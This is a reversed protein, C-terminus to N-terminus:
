IEEVNYRNCSDSLNCRNSTDGLNCRNSVDGFDCRKGVKGLNCGHIVKGLNCKNSLNGFDCRNSVKGLDCRKSAEGTNYRNSGEGLDCRQNGWWIAQNLVLIIKLMKEVSSPQSLKFYWKWYMWDILRSSIDTSLKTSIILGPDVWIYIMRRLRWTWLDIGVTWFEHALLSARM